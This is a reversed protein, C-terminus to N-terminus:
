QRAARGPYRQRRANVPESSSLVSVVRIDVNIYHGDTNQIAVDTRCAAMPLDLGPDPAVGM